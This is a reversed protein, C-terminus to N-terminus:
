NADAGRLPLVACRPSRCSIAQPFWAGEEIGRLSRVWETPTLRGVLGYRLSTMLDSQEVIWKRSERVSGRRIPQGTILNLYLARAVDMGNSDIFLRLPAGARPNVDLLKYQGDRRDYRYGMDVIGSYGIKHLFGVVMQEVTENKLCIGL